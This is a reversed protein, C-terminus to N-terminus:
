YKDRKDWGDYREPWHLYDPGFIKEQVEDIKKRWYDAEPHDTLARSYNPWLKNFGDCVRELRKAGLVDRGMVDPDNLVEAIIDLALQATWNQIITDIMNRRALLKKAYANKAM